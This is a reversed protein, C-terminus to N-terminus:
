GQIFARLLAALSALVSGGSALGAWVKFQVVGDNVQRLRQEHDRAMTELQGLHQEVLTHEYALEHRLKEMDGRLLDVLHGLREALLEMNPDEEM